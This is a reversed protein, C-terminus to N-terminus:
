LSLRLIDENNQCSRDNVLRQQVIILQRQKEENDMRLQIVTETIDQATRTADADIEEDSLHSPHANM